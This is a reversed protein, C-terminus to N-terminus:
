SDDEQLFGRRNLAAGRDGGGVHVVFSHVRQKSLDARLVGLPDRDDVQGGPDAGRTRGAGEHQVALARGGGGGNVCDPGITEM